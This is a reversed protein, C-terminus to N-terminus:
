AAKSFVIKSETFFVRLIVNGVITIVLLVKASIIDLPTFQEAIMLLATILNFWFTKSELLTKQKM